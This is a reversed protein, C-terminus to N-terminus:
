YQYQDAFDRAKQHPNETNNKDIDYSIHSYDKLGRVIILEKNPTSMPTDEEKPYCTVHNIVAFPNNAYIRWEILEDNQYKLCNQPALELKFNVDPNLIKVSKQYEDIENVSVHYQGIGPCLSVSSDSTAVTCGSIISTEEYRIDHETIPPPDDSYVELENDDPSTKDEIFDLKTIEKMLVKGKANPLHRKVEKWEIQVQRGRYKDNVSIDSTDIMSQGPFPGIMWFGQLKQKEDKIYIRFFDELEIDFFTGETIGTSIAAPQETPVPLPIPDLEKTSHDQNIAQLSPQLTTNKASTNSEKSKNSDDSSGSKCFTVFILFVCSFMFINKVM